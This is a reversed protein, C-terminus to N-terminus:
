KLLDENVTCGQTAVFMPEKTEKRVLKEQHSKRISNCDAETCGAM